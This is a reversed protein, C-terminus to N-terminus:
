PTYSYVTGCGISCGTGGTVTTGYLTRGVVTLGAYPQAGDGPAGFSHLVTEHGDPTVAFLTGLNHAGGAPTTGYLVGNLAVLGNSTQPEEGDAGGRFSYLVQETGGPTVSYITGLGHRGGAETTGYFTGNIDLLTSFPGAGDPAPGFTYSISVNHRRKAPNLAFVVGCAQAGCRLGGAAVSYLLGGQPVLGAQPFAGGKRDARFDRLVTEHGALTLAYLTGVGYLGGTTTTGYLASGLATVSGLPQTGDQGGKRSGFSYLVSATGGADLTFVTGHGAAGGAATTGYFHQGAKTLTALPSTGDAGSGFNHLITEIGAPTIAYATGQEATGGSSTTGYLKGGDAVLAGFAYAGDAPGDQFMHLVAYSAARAPPGVAALGAGVLAPMLVFGRARM